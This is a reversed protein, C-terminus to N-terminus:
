VDDDIGWTNLVTIKKTHGVIFLLRVIHLLMKSIWLGWGHYDSNLGDTGVRFDVGESCYSLDNTFKKGGYMLFVDRM